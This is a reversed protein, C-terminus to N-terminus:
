HDINKQRARGIALQNTAIDETITSGAGVFANNEITLPAVLATNSGIFVGNGIITKHKQKGDYNCTITGAGINTSQGIQTDGLYTLHNAKTGDKLTANKTEVYNGIKVSNGFECGQRIHAFPGIQCHDGIKASVIQTNAKIETHSGITVTEGPKGITCNPGITVQNGIIVTGEFICNVDIVVDSGITLEGRCDFRNPDILTVGAELYEGALHQQYDRELVALQNKNNVGQAEFSFEPHLTSINLADNIMLEIIDTLYYEKQSNNNKVQPLYKKLINNKIALMGTSVENIKKEEDTADKEEIVRILKDNNRLIRGLGEPNTTKQTLLSADHHTIQDVLGKITSQSLLPADAYLILSIGEDSLFPLAQAAANGTGLQDEQLVYTLDLDAKTAECFTEVQEKKFGTIVLCHKILPVKNLTELLHGILPKGALPQLVKPLSSRMRTGAGAALLIVNVTM